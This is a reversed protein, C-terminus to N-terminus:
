RGQRPLRGQRLYPMTRTRCQSCVGRSNPGLVRSRLRNGFLVAMRGDRTDNERVISMRAVVMWSLRCLFVDSEPSPRPKWRFLASLRFENFCHPSCNFRRCWARLHVKLTHHYSSDQSSSGLALVKCFVEVTCVNSVQRVREDVSSLGPLRHLGCQFFKISKRLESRVLSHSM